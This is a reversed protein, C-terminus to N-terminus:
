SRLRRGRCTPSSFGSGGTTWLWSFDGAAQSMPVHQAAIQVDKLEPMAEPLISTQIHRAIELEKRIAVLAKETHLGAQSGAM